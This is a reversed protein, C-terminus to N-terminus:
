KKIVDNEKLKSGDLAIHDYLAIGYSTKPEVIAYEENEYIISIQKFVAYGKNINYVGILSDMDKGVEYTESSDPKVLIDGKTVEEDDIYYATESEYYITPTIVSVTDASTETQKVLIGLNNSDDGKTFYEKPITFFEKTIIASKPIKLGSQENLVLEIEVFRDNIYRIMATRLSLNLYFSGEKKFVTYSANTTFGDKCFRIRISSGESLEEALEDSVAVIINWDESGVLKYVPDTTSVQANSDLNTKQYSSANLHEPVFTDATVDEYGDVYYVVLGTDGAHNRYFTNNAEASSVQDSLQNLAKTNLTQTLESNLDNKFTYIYSFRNPNYSNTFGDIEESIETLADEGLRSGDSGASNIKGAITGDTDVSYVVDNVSVRTGNKVYYNIYGNQGSYVVTEDRLILGHYVNNSAITGQGVEYEAIPSSTLYSFVNFIVYFIILLFIGLGINFNLPKKYKIVKQNKSM